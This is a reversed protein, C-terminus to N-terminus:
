LMGNCCGRRVDQDVCGAITMLLALFRVENCHKDCNNMM